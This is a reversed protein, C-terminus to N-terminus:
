SSKYIRLCSRSMKRILQALLKKKRKINSIKRKLQVLLKRKRKINSIKRIL